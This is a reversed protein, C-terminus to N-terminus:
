LSLIRWQPTVLSYQEVHLRGKLAGTSMYNFWKTTPSIDVQTIRGPVGLEITDGFSM